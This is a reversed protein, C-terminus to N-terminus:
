FYNPLLPSVKKLIKWNPQKESIIPLLCFAHQVSDKWFAALQRYAQLQQNKVDGRVVANELRNVNLWDRLLLIQNPLKCFIKYMLPNGPLHAPKQLHLVKRKRPVTNGFFYLGLLLLL